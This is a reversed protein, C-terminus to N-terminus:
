QINWDGQGVCVTGSGILTAGTVSVDFMRSVCCYVSPNITYFLTPNSDYYDEKAIMITVSYNGNTLRLSPIRLRVTGESKVSSDFWLERTIFRCVDQIGDRHLAIVFQSRERLLPDHISYDVELVALEGHHLIHRESGQEDVFRADRVTFTGTGHVGTINLTVADQVTAQQTAGGSSWSTWEPSEGTIAGIEVEQDRYFLRVVLACPQPSAYNISCGLDELSLSGAGAPISFAGAVKHFPSGYNLLPRCSRGDWDLRTGWATGSQVLHSASGNVFADDGFPLAALPEGEVLLVAENFYVLGPQPRGDRSVIEMLVYETRKTEPVAETLEQLSRQKKVRLRNEEQQRVSDEYAKVVVPSDADMLVTGRDIWIARNCIKVASYVDHTVLLLTTGDRECLQRIREYSKNAFYSDGVGLVEDLVLLDPTIATSTSFMLRVAMGSSYTKVPQGIYEELEAFEVIEDYKKEAERGTVGLQALYAFVNERGSFDPHFGTGIQLLAHAKGRVDLTGATPEIVGTFLKLLTSKGAGNRGIFAVKEGRRIDLSVGGLAAHETYAGATNRLLGFMDLFRYRPSTYLRYVKTLDRAHIVIDSMGDSMGDSMADSKSDSM